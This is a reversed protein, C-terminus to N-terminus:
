VSVYDRDIDFDYSWGIEIEGHHLKIRSILAVAIAGKQKVDLNKWEAELDAIGKNLAEGPNLNLSDLEDKLLSREEDLAVLRENLYGATINGSELAMDILKQIKLDIEGIRINLGNREKSEALGINAQLCSYKNAWRFIQAEVLGELECLLGLNGEVTCASHVTKGTCYLYTYRGANSTKPVVCYGCYGCKILGSLWTIKSRRRNDVPKNGDLRLQCRIFLDPEIVGCHPALSLTHKRVDSYKRENRERKGYLYCGKEAIFESLENAFLCGRKRYYNYVEADARVSVPNRLIRSIKSSDWKRGAPSAIDEENLRRAIEGLSCLGNGYMHYINELVSVTDPNPELLKLRGSATDHETKIFGFPPPGGLYMGKEGRSYYNDRIRQQITEREFEAFVMIIKFMTRGLPTSTDFDEQTSVFSVGHKDFSEVLNVFDLLSRSVRDLRYVVIRQIRGARVDTLLRQFEPRNTNSGSYGRDSYIECKQAEDLKKRCLDIQTEISISDKKDVSQRTYVADM